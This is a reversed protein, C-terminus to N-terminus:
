YYIDDKSRQVTAKMVRVIYLMIYCRKADSLYKYCHDHDDIELHCHIKTEEKM